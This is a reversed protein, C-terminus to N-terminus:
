PKLVMTKFLVDKVWGQTLVENLENRLLDKVLKKGLPSSLDAYTQEEIARQLRDHLERQRAQVELAADQSDMVVYFEFAGMPNRLTSTTRLNVVIKPFLFEIEEQPFARYLGVWDAKVQPEWVRDAALTLDSVIRPFLQPLWVGVLNLKLFIPIAVILAVFAVWAMKQIRSLQFFASVGARIKGKLDGGVSRCYKVFEIPLTRCYILIQRMISGTQTRTMLWQAYLRSRARGLPALLKDLAPYNEFWRGRRSVDDETPLSEEGPVASEIVVEGESGITQLETLQLAFDPDDEKLLRDIEDLSVEDLRLDSTPGPTTSKPDMGSM